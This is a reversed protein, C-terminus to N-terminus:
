AADREPVGLTDKLDKTVRLDQLRVWSRIVTTREVLVIDHNTKKKAVVMAEQGNVMLVPIEDDLWVADDGADALVKRAM